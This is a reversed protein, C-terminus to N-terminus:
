WRWVVAVNVARGDVPAWLPVFVPNSFPPLVVKEHRNQRFDLLNECNLVVDFHRARYGAMSAVFWYPITQSGDDRLQRGTWAAEIGARFHTGFDHALVGAARHRPTLPLWPQATNFTQKALQYTYGLYLETGEFTLRLYHDLGTTTTPKDASQWAVDGDPLSKEILPRQFQTRFFQQNFTVAFREGFLRHYNWEVSGGLSREARLDDALPRVRRLDTERDDSNLTSPTAYGLGGGARLSLSTHIRYLLAASPLAFLGYRTHYDTRFGLEADLKGRHFAAQAFAGPTHNQFDVFQLSDTAGKEFANGRYNLGAVWRFNKSETERYALEGFWDQQRGAFQWGPVERGRRFDSLAAKATWEGGHATSRRYQLDGILRQTQNREFFPHAASASNQVALLDGGLRHEATLTLGVAIQENKNPYFFLRPHLTFTRLRAIDTFGDGEVDRANQRSAGGFFTYGWYKKKGSFWTTANTEGLSTQNVTLSHEAQTRPTKSIFNIVGAIAGGGFLTSASGKILEIQQLDLPQVQLIGFDGSLGSYIPLGDRLLQTYRGALGQIRVVANGSSLGTQQIQIGSYDGLISAVNNPKLNNEEDMDERGLVEVKTPSDEVRSNTRTSQVIVTELDTQEPYLYFRLTDGPLPPLRATIYASTYGLYQARVRTTDGILNPIDARGNADTTNGREQPQTFISVGVLPEATTADRVLLHLVSSQASVVLSASLLSLLLFSIKKNV